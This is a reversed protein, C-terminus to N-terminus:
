HRSRRKRERELTLEEMYGATLIGAPLAVIGVGVFTSLMTVIKGVFSTAYIDGYGVATLSVTGWYLADFFSDFTDPELNFILLATIFIYGLALVIVTILAERQKRFVAFMLKMNKSYKIVKLLVLFRFLRVLKLLVFGSGLLSLYPLICLLDLLGWSSIPYYWYSASGKKLYLDATYWRVLYDLVFIVFPLWEFLLWVGTLSGKVMLPFFSALITVVMIVDYALALKTDKKGVEIIDFLHEKLTMSGGGVYM